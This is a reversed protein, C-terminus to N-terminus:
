ARKAAARMPTVVNSAEGESEDGSSAIVGAIHTSVREFADVRAPWAQDKNYLAVLGSRVHGIALEAVEESVGCRSMLTRTSRRLDHLRVDVGSLKVARDMLSSWGSMEGGSASSPFVLDSTTRPQASLITKMLATLPVAHTVGMKTREAQVVIRDTHIDSWRLGSLESRRYGTLLALRLLGGFPGLVGATTWLAGIESDPLARGGRGEQLREARSSRPRRLGALPNFGILGKTVAFEFMSRSVARLDQAAGPRGSHDLADIQQVIDRRTLTDIAKDLLPELGRRLTSMMPAVNVLGRRKISIEYADLAHSLVQRTRLKEVRREAAPDKRLAIDGALAAAASQAQRLSLSPWRGLTVRRPAAARGAGVPRYVYVFAAGGGARLRLGLGRQTESWLTLSEKGEPVGAQVFRAVRAETLDPM